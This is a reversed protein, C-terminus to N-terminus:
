KTIKYSKLTYEGNEVYVQATGSAYRDNSARRAQQSTMDTTVGSSYISFEVSVLKGNQSLSDVIAINDYSIGDAAPTYFYGDSYKFFSYTKETYISEKKVSKDLFNGLIKNVENASIKNYYGIDDDIYETSVLSGGNMMAYSYAFRVLEYTDAKDASYASNESFYVKSFVTLFENVAKSTVATGSVSDGNNSDDANDATNDATIDEADDNDEANDDSVGTTTAITSLTNKDDDDEFISDNATGLHLCIASAAAVVSIIVATFIAKAKNM